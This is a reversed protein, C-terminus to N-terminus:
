PGHWRRPSIRPLIAIHTRWVTPSVRDGVAQGLWIQPRPGHVSGPRQIARCSIPEIVRFERMTHTLLNL